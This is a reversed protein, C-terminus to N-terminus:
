KIKDFIHAEFWKLFDEFSITVAIKNACGCISGYIVCYWPKHNQRYLLIPIEGDKCANLCQEWWTKINLTQQRKIEICLGFPNTLDAGGVATQNQNRQIYAVSDHKLNKKAYIDRVIKELIKQIEREGCQGKTRVNIKKKTM